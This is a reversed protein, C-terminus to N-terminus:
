PSWGFRVFCACLIYIRPILHFIESGSFWEHDTSLLWSWKRIPNLNEYKNRNNRVQYSNFKSYYLRDTLLHRNTNMFYTIKWNSLHTKKQNLLKSKMLFFNWWLKSWKLDTCVPQFKWFVCFETYLVFFWSGYFSRYLLRYNLSLFDNLEFFFSQIPFFLLM